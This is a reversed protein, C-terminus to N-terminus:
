AQEVEVQGTMWKWAPIVDVNGLKDQQDMTVILGKNLNFVKM